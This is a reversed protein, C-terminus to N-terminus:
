PLRAQIMRIEHIAREVAAHVGMLDNIDRPDDGNDRLYSIRTKVARLERELAGATDGTWDEARAKTM